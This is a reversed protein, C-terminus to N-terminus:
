RSGDIAVHTAQSCAVLPHVDRTTRVLLHHDIRRDGGNAATTSPGAFPMTRHSASARAGFLGLLWGSRPLHVCLYAVSGISVGKPERGREPQRSLAMAQERLRMVPLAARGRGRWSPRLNWTRKASSM